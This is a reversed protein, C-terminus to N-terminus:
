VSIPMDSKRLNRKDEELVAADSGWTARNRQPGQSKSPSHEPGSNLEADFRSEVDSVRRREDKENQERQAHVDSDKHCEFWHTAPHLWPLWAVLYRWWALQGIMDEDLDTDELIEAERERPPTGDRVTQPAFIKLLGRGHPLTSKRKPMTPSRALSPKNDRPARAKSMGIYALRCLGGAGIITPLLQSPYFIRGNVGLVQRVHNYQLTYECM